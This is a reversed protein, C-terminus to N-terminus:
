EGQEWASWTGATHNGDRIRITCVAYTRGGNTKRRAAGGVGGHAGRHRVSHGPPPDGRALEAALPSASARVAMGVGRVGARVAATCSSSVFQRREVVVDRDFSRVCLLPPSPSPSLPLTAIRRCGASLWWWGVGRHRAVAIPIPPLPHPPLPTTHSPLHSSVLAPHLPLFVLPSRHASPHHIITAGRDTTRLPSHHTSLASAASSSLLAAREDSIPTSPPHIPVPITQIPAGRRARGAFGVALRVVCRLLVLLVLLLVLLLRWVVLFVDVCVCPHPGYM